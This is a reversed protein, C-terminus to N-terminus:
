QRGMLVYVIPTASEALAYLIESAGFVQLNLPTNAPLIFGASTVGSGGIYIASACLITIPIPDQNSGSLVPPGAEFAYLATATSANLAVQSGIFAM